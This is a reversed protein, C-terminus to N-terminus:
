QGEEDSAALAALRAREDDSLAAAEVPGRRRRLAAWAIAIGALLALVPSAWLLWTGPRFPPDLLVFEGYRAVLFRHIQEDSEGAVLRERILTRLDQALAADSDDISQNQCVLCRVGRFIERARQELGADAFIEDPQVAHVPAVALPALLLFAVIALMRM